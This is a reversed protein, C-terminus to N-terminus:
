CIGPLTHTHRGRHWSLLRAWCECGHVALVVIGALLTAETTRRLLENRRRQLYKQRAARAEEDTDGGDGKRTRKNNTNNSSNFYRDSFKRAEDDIQTPTLLPTAWEETGYARPDRLGKHPRLPPAPLAKVLSCGEDDAETGSESPSQSVPKRRKRGDDDRMTDDASGCRTQEQLDADDRGSSSQRHIQDRHRLYPHPSRRLLQLEEGGEHAGPEPPAADQSM